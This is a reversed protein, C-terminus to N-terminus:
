FNIFCYINGLVLKVLTKKYLTLNNFSSITIIHFIGIKWRDIETMRNRQTQKENMRGRACGDIRLLFILISTSYLLYFATHNSLTLINKGVCLFFCIEM